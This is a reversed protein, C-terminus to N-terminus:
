HGVIMLRCLGRTAPDEISAGYQIASQLASMSAVDLLPIVDELGERRNTRHPAENEPMLAMRLGRLFVRNSRDDTTGVIMWRLLALLLYPGSDRPYSKDSDWPQSDLDSIGQEVTRALDGLIATAAGSALWDAMAAVLGYDDFMQRTLERLVASAHDSDLSKNISLLEAAAACISESDSGSLLIGNLQAIYRSEWNKDGRAADSSARWIAFLKSRCHDESSSRYIRYGLIRSAWEVEPKRGYVTTLAIAILRGNSSEQALSALQEVELSEIFLFEELTSCVNPHLTESPRCFERLSDITAQPLIQRQAPFLPPMGISQRPRLASPMHGLRAVLAALVSTRTVRARAVVQELEDLTLCTAEDALLALWAVSNGAPPQALRPDSLFKRAAQGAAAAQEPCQRMFDLIRYGRPEIDFFHGLDCLQDWIVSEWVQPERPARRLLDVLPPRFGQQILEASVQGILNAYESDANMRDIERKFDSQRWTSRGFTLAACRAEQAPTLEHGYRDLLVEGARPALEISSGEVIKVLIDFISRSRFPWTPEDIWVALRLEGEVLRELEHPELDAGSRFLLALAFFSGYDHLTSLKLKLHLTVPPGLKLGLCFREWEHWSGSQHQTRYRVIEEFARAETAPETIALLMAAGHRTRPDPHNLQVRLAGRYAAGDGGTLLDRFRQRIEPHRPLLFEGIGRVSNALLGPGEPGANQMSTLFVRWWGSHAGGLEDTEGAIRQALWRTAVLGGDTVLEALIREAGPVYSGDHLGRLLANGVLALRREGRDCLEVAAAGGLYSDPDFLFWRLIRDLVDPGIRAALTALRKPSDQDDLGRENRVLARIVQMPPRDAFLSLFLKAAPLRYGTSAATVILERVLNTEGGNVAEEIQQEAQSRFRTDHLLSLCFWLRDRKEFASPLLAVLAPLITIVGESGTRIYLEILSKLRIQKEASLRGINLAAWEEFVEKTLMSGFHELPYRPNLYEDFFWVFGEDEALSLAEGIARTSPRSDQRNDSYRWLPRPGLQKLQRIFFRATEPDRFECILIAAASANGTEQLLQTLFHFVSPRVFESRGLRRAMTSAFSAIRWEGTEEPMAAKQDSAAIVHAYGCLFEQFTQLPFSFGDEVSILGCSAFNRLAEDVLAAKTGGVPDPLISELNLRVEELFIKERARLSLALKALVRARSDADPLTSDLLITQSTKSDRQAWDALRQKVLEYLLDGLTARSTPGNQLLKSFLLRCFLPTTAVSHLDPLKQLERLALNGSAQAEKLPMGDALAEEVFLNLKQEDALPSTSCVQWSSYDVGLLEVPRGTAVVQINPWYDGVTALQTLLLRVTAPNMEDLGDVILALETNSDLFSRLDVGPRGPIIQQNFYLAIASLFEEVSKWAQGEEHVLPIAKAAIYIALSGRVANQFEKVYNAAITSKGAGLEGLVLTRRGTRAVELLPILLIRDNRDTAEFDRFNL